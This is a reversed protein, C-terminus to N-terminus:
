LDLHGFLFFAVYISVLTNLLVTGPEASATESDDHPPSSVNPTDEAKSVNTEGEGSGVDTKETTDLSVTDEKGQTLPTELKRDSDFDPPPINTNVVDSSGSSSDSTRTRDSANIDSSKRLGKVTHNSLSLPVEVQEPTGIFIGSVSSSNPYSLRFLLGFVFFSALGGIAIAVTSVKRPFGAALISNKPYGFAM